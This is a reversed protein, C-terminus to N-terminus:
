IEFVKESPLFYLVRIVVEGSDSTQNLTLTLTENKKTSTVKNSRENGVQSIDLIDAFFSNETGLGVNLTTGATAAQTIEVNVDVIEAGKPLIVAEYPSTSLTKVQVEVKALHTEFKVRQQAM